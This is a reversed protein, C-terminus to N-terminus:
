VGIIGLVSIFVLEVPASPDPHQCLASATSKLPTSCSPKVSVTLTMTDRLPEADPIATASTLKSAGM